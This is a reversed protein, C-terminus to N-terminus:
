DEVHKWVDSLCALEACRVPVDQARRPKEVDRRERGQWLWWRRPASGSQVVAVLASRVGGAM